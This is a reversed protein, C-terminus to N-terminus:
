NKGKREICFMPHYADENKMKRRVVWTFSHINCTSVDYYNLFSDAYTSLFDFLAIRYNSLHYHINELDFSVCDEYYYCDM